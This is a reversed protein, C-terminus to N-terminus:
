SKWQLSSLPRVTSKICEGQRPPTPSMALPYAPIKRWLNKLDAKHVKLARATRGSVTFLHSSRPLPLPLKPRLTPVEELLVSANGGAADFSNVLLKRRGDGKSWAKMCSKGDAMKINAAELDRFAKNLPFPYGPQPPIAGGNRLMLVSKILSVIGAAAETHGVNAKASGVYLPNDATRDRAFVKSVSSMETKDGAQTGTGHVEIYGVDHPHVSSKCLLESFLAAQAVESPYTISAEGANSNRASGRIVALINANEMVADELRKLVVVGVAEGRSYGDASEQFTKCSGNEVSQSIFGAKGLGSFPEPIVCLSGGGVIATDSERSLLAHCALHVSALSSSCATDISYAAGGWRFQHAIRGAAFARNSSTVYHTDVGQQENITRWDDTTQSWFTSIRSPHTSLAIDQAYGARELAEHTTMLFMRHLPDMQMAERPSIKFFAHDFLGLNSLFCGHRNLVADKITQTPDYFEELAFRTAPIEQHTTRGAVLLDWFEDIDGDCGTFRGSMGVIAILSSGGRLSSSIPAPQVSPGSHVKVRDGKLLKQVIPTSFTPGVQILIAESDTLRAGLANVTRELWLTSSCIDIAAQQLLSRVTTVRFPSCTACSYITRCVSTKELIPNDGVVRSVEIPPLHPAHVSTTGTLLSTTLQKFEASSELAAITSPPGFVTTWASTVVGVYAQKIPPISQNFAQLCKDIDEYPAVVVVAWADTSEEIRRARQRLELGLRFAIGVAEVGLRVLQSTDRAAAAVSAALMGICFGLPYVDQCSSLLSTDDEAISILEGIQAVVLLVAGTTEEPRASAEYQEALELLDTFHGFDLHESPSALLSLQVQTIDTADQLFQRLQPRTHSIKHLHSHRIGEGRPSRRFISYTRSGNRIANKPGPIPFQLTHRVLHLRVFNTHSRPGICECECRALNSDLVNFKRPIALRNPLVTVYQSKWEEATASQGHVSRDWYCTV